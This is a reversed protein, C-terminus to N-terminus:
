APRPAAVPAEAPAASDIELFHGMEPAAPPSTAAGPEAPLGLRSELAALMEEARRDPSVPAPPTTAPAPQGTSAAAVEQRAAAELELSRTKQVARDWLTETESGPLGSANIEVRDGVMQALQAKLDNAQQLLRAQEEPLRLKAAEAAATAQALGARLTELEAERSKREARLEEAQKPNQLKDALEAKSDLDALLRELRNVEDQLRNRRMVAVVVSERSRHLAQRLQQLSERMQQKPDRSSDSM